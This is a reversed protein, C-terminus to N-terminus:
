SKELIKFGNGQSDSGSLKTAELPFDLDRQESTSSKTQSEWAPEQVSRAMSISGYYMLYVFSTSEM